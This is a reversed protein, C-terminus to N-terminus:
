ANLGGRIDNLIVKATSWRYDLRRIGIWDNNNLKKKLLSRPGKNNEAQRQVLQDIEKTSMNKSQMLSSFDIIFNRTKSKILNITGQNKISLWTNASQQNFLQLSKVKDQWTLYEQEYQKVKDDFSNFQAALINYRIHPGEIALSFQNALTINQKCQESVKPSKLLLETLLDFPFVKDTESDLVSNMLDSHSAVQSLVTDQIAPTATLKDRLFKAETKTLKLNLTELWNISKDPLYVVNDHHLSDKDDTGEYTDVLGIQTHATTDIHHCFDALSLKTKIIDFTRLGNWYIVSPRRDVGGSNIRTRGIIGGSDADEGHVRVLLRAVENEVKKLYDQLGNKQKSLPLTQFDRIIRPITIFYKARTQITSIGLFLADSYADRIQGIGLEDLTGEESVLSLVNSVKNRDDLSFDIWGMKSMM